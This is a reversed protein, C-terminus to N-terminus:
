LLHAEITQVLEEVSMNGLLARSSSWLAGTKYAESSTVAIGLDSYGASESISPDLIQLEDQKLQIWLHELTSRSM